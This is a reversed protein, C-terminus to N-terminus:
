TGSTPAKRDRRARCEAAQLSPTPTDAEKLDTVIGRNALAVGTRGASVPNSGLQAIRIPCESPAGGTM